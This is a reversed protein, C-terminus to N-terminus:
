GTLSPKTWGVPMLMVPVVATWPSLRCGKTPINALRTWISRACGSCYDLDMMTIVPLYIVPYKIQALLEALYAYDANSEGAVDGTHLVFDVPVPLANIQAVLAPLAASTHYPLALVQAAYQALEPQIGAFDKKQDPHLLHTDSIHVFNLLGHM